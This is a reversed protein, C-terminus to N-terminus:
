EVLGAQHLDSARSQEVRYSARAHREGIVGPHSRLPVGGPVVCRARPQPAVAQNGEVGRAEGNRVLGAGVTVNSAQKSRISNTEISADHARLSSKRELQAARERVLCELQADLCRLRILHGRAGHRGRGCTGASGRAGRGRERSSPGRRRGPVCWGWGEQTVRKVSDAEGREARSEPRPRLMWLVNQMALNSQKQRALNSPAKCDAGCAHRGAPRACCASCSLPQASGHQVGSGRQAPPKSSLTCAVHVAM